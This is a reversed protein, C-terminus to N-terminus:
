GECIQDDDAPGGGAAPPAIAILFAIWGINTSASATGDENGTAGHSVKSGHAICMASNTSTNEYDQTFGSPVTHGSAGGHDDNNAVWILLCDDSTTTVGTATVTAPSANAASSSNVSQSDIPSTAHNGTVRQAILQTNQTQSLNVTYNAPEGSAIKWAWLATQGDQTSGGSNGQTFGSPWTATVGNNDANVYLLVLDGDATGSPKSVTPANTNGIAPTGTTAVVPLTM